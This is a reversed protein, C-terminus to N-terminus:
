LHEPLSQDETTESTSIALNRLVTNGEDERDSPKGGTCTVLGLFVGDCGV